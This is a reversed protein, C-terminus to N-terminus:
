EDKKIKLSMKKIARLMKLGKKKYMNDIALNMYFNEVVQKLRAYEFVSIPWLKKSM